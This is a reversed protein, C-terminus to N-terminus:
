KMDFFKNNYKDNCSNMSAFIFNDLNGNLEIFKEEHKSWLRENLDGYVVGVSIMVCNCIQENNPNHKDLYELTDLCYSNITQNIDFDIETDNKISETKNSINENAFINAALIIMSSSVLLLKKLNKM